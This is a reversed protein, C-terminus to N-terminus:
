TVEGIRFDKYIQLLEAKGVSFIKKCNEESMGDIDESTLGLKVWDAFTFDFYFMIDPNLGRMLLQKFTVGMQRLQVPTCKLNWLEALDARFDTLPNVPFVVMDAIDCIQLGGRGTWETKDPQINKLEDPEFGMERLIRWSINRHKIDEWTLTLRPQAWWGFIQISQYPTIKM